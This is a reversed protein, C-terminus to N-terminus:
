GFGFLLPFVFVVVAAWGAYVPLYGAVWAELPDVRAGDPRLRGMLRRLAYFLVGGLHVAVLVNAGLLALRNPTLGLALREGLAVLAVADAVLALAALGAVVGDTWHRRGAPRGAVLLVILLLAGGLMADFAALTERDRLPAAGQALLVPLYVALVALALPGFFRALMPVLRGEDRRLSVVFLAVLPAGVAGYPVVWEFWEEEISVGVAGFLGLTVGTLAAGGAAILGAVAAAEATLQLYAVRGAAERWRAGLAALGAVLWLLIPAHLMGLLLTDSESAGPRLAQWLWMAGFVGATAMLPRRAPRYRYALLAALAPLVFFPLHREYFGVEDLGTLAPLKAYTGGLLGLGVTLAVFGLLRGPALAAGLPSDEVSPIEAPAGATTTAAGDLRAQWTRLVLDGPRAALADALAAAFAAPAARYLAELTEPANAHRAIEDALSDSQM